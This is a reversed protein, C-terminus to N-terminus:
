DRERVWPLVPDEPRQLPVGDGDDLVPGVVFNAGASIYLAATPADVISGVGLILEPLEERCYAELEAFVSVAGDGRNTFEVVTAGGEACAAIIKKGIEVDPHYFVAVM